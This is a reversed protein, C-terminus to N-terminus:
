VSSSKVRMFALTAAFTWGQSSPHVASVELPRACSPAVGRGSPVTVRAQDSVTATLTTTQTTDTLTVTTQAHVANAGLVLTAVTFAGARALRAMGRSSHRKM